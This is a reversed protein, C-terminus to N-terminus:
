KAGPRNRDNMPRGKYYNPELPEHKKPHLARDIRGFIKLFQRELWYLGRIILGEKALVNGINGGNIGWSLFCRRCPLPPMVSHIRWRLLRYRWGNWIQEFSKEKLNGLFQQSTCCPVVIGDAHIYPEKWPSSCRRPFRNREPFLRGASRIKKWLSDERVAHNTTGEDYDPPTFLNFELEKAVARARRLAANARAPEFRLSQEDFENDNLSYDAVGMGVIGYKHALRVVLELEDINRRLAVFNFIFRSSVRNMHIDRLKKIMALKELFLDFNSGERVAEFTEKTGGDCSIYIDVPVRMLQEIRDFSLLSANTVFHVNSGNQVSMELISDFDSGLTPEGFGTISIMSNTPMVDRRVQEKIDAHLDQAHYAEYGKVCTKCFFNCKTTSELYLQSPMSELRLKQQQFEQENLAKNAEQAPSLRHQDPIWRETEAGQKAAKRRRWAAYRVGMKADECDPHDALVERYLAEAEELRNLNMLRDAMRWRAEANGPNLQLYSEYVAIAHEHDGRYAYAGALHGLIDASDPERLRLSELEAIGDTEGDHMRRLIEALTGPHEHPLTEQEAVHPM